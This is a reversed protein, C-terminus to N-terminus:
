DEEILEVESLDMELDDFRISKFKENLTCNNKLEYKNNVLSYIWVKKSMPSVIWYEPVGYEEYLDKKSILDDDSNSPSLVEIVLQPIGIYGRYFIQNKDCYVAVDPAVEAKKSKILNDIINKDSKIIAPDEKTLFLAAEISVNCSKKFYNRLQLYLEGQLEIHNYRPRPSMYKINNIWEEKLLSKELNGSEM